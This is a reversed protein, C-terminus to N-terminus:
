RAHYFIKLPLWRLRAREFEVWRHCLVVGVGWQGTICALIHGGGGGSGGYVNISSLSSISVTSEWVFLYTCQITAMVVQLFTTVLTRLTSICDVGSLEFRGPINFFTQTILCKNYVAMNWLLKPLGSWDIFILLICFLLKLYQSNHAFSQFYPFIGPFFLNYNSTTLTQTVISLRSYVM